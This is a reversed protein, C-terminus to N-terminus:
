SAVNSLGPLSSPSQRLSEGNKEARDEWRVASLLFELFSSKGAGSRDSGKGKYTALSTGFDQPNACHTALRGFGKCVATQRPFRTFRREMETDMEKLCSM